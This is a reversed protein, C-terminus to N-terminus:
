EIHEAGQTLLVRDCQQRFEEEKVGEPSTESVGKSTCEFRCTPRRDEPSECDVLCLDELSRPHNGGLRSELHREVSRM